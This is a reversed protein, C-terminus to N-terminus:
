NNPSASSIDALASDRDKVRALDGLTVIGVPKGDEVVPLRRVAAQEMKRIADGISDGPDLVELDTSAMERVSTHSPDDGAAIARVVIDRDTVIGQVKGNEVVLVDGINEQKMIKAADVLTASAEVTTPNETMVDRVTDAM